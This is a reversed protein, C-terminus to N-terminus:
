VLDEGVVDALRNDSAFLGNPTAAMLPPMLNDGKALVDKFDYTGKGLLVVFRPAPRWKARALGIFTKVNHPSPIGFGMQDHISELTVVRTRLGQSQRHEALEGAATELSEPTIVVYDAGGTRLSSLSEVVRAEPEHLAASSSAFYRRGEFAQFSVTSARTLGTVLLPARPNTVDLLSADERSFGAVHVAGSSVAEFSMEEGLAEHRRPYRVDISDVYVVDFAVGSELVAEVTLTNAGERILSSDLEFRLTARGVDSFSGEGVSTGNVRVRLRHKTTTAGFAEVEITALPGVFEVASAVFAYTGTRYAPHSAMLSSWYWFDSDPNTSALTAAFVDKELHESRFHYGPGDAGPAGAVLGMRLGRGPALWYVNESAYMTELKEAFFYLGSGDGAAFWAADAGRTSLRLRGRALLQSIQAETTSLELAIRAASVFHVGAGRTTLKM